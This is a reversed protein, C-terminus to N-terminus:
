KNFIGLACKMADIVKLLCIQNDADLARTHDEDGSNSSFMVAHAPSSTDIGHDKVLLGVSVTMPM